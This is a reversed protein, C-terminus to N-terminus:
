KINKKLEVIGSQLFGLIKKILTKGKPTRGLSILTGGLILTALWKNLRKEMVSM